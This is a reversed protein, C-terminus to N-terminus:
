SNLTFGTYMPISSRDREVRIPSKAIASYLPLGMSVQLDKNYTSPLGKVTAMLGFLQGMAPGAKGRLLELADPNKKQPM